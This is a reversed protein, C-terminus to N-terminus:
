TPTMPRGPVGSQGASPTQTITASTLPDAGPRLNKVSLAAGAGLFHYGSGVKPNLNRPLPANCGEGTTEDANNAPSFTVQNTALRYQVTAYLM